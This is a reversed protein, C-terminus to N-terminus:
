VSGIYGRAANYASDRDILCENRAGTSFANVRVNPHDAEIQRIEHEISLWEAPSIEEVTKDWVTPVLYNMFTIVVSNPRNLRFADDMTDRDWRALRRLKKTVTTMEFLNELDKIVEGPLQALARAHLESVAEQMSPKGREDQDLMHIRHSNIGYHNAADVCAHEFQVLSHISVRPKQHNAVLYTNIDRALEVWSMEGPMPGSNGAVRIPFTRCVLVLEKEVTCSLGCEALWNAAQTQKHTTYPYPGLHLDLLTGQTGEILIQQGNDYASNLLVEVYCTSLNLYKLPSDDPIRYDQWTHQGPNGRSRIKDMVAESCGKGTAGMKHHRGSEKSKATHWEYHMGCNYDIYIRGALKSLGEGTLSAVTELERELITPHIYAGAGIVLKTNPNQWGVPLQQMKIPHGNHMVTHGANVTGTRVAFDVGRSLGLSAAVMGKAESGWQGGQILIVPKVKNM